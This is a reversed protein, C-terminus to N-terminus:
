GRMRLDICQPPCVAVCRGCESCVGCDLCRSAAHLAEEESVAPEIESFDLPASHVGGDLAWPRITSHTAQRALVAMKDVVPLAEDLGASDLIQGQLWRDIMYAARRGQGAAQTISSAGDVVDGAAFVYPVSTQLTVPDAQITGEPRLALGFGAVDPALGAAIIVLLKGSGGGAAQGNAPENGDKDVISHGELVFPAMESPVARRRGSEDPEALEMPQCVLSDVGDEGVCETPTALYVFRVGEKEAEEIEWANAPM